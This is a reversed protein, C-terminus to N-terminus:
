PAAVVSDAEDQPPERLAKLALEIGRAFGRKDVKALNESGGDSPEVLIRPTLETDFM